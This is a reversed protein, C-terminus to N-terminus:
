KRVGAKSQFNKNSIINSKLKYNQRYDAKIRHSLMATPRPNSGTRVALVIFGQAM